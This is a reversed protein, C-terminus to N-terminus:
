SLISIISVHQIVDNAERAIDVNTTSFTPPINTNIDITNDTPLIGVPVANNVDTLTDTVVTTTTQNEVFCCCCLELLFSM